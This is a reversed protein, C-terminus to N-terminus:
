YIGKEQLWCDLEDYVTVFDISFSSAKNDKKCEVYFSREIVLCIDLLVMKVIVYVHLNQCIFVFGMCIAKLFLGGKNEIIM